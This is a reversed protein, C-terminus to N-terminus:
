SLLENNTHSTEHVDARNSTLAMERRLAERLHGACLLHEVHTQQIFSHVLLHSLSLSLETDPTQSVIPDCPLHLNEQQLHESHCSSLWLSNEVLEWSM